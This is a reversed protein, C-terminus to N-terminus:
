KENKKWKSVSNRSLKFHHALQTNNLLNKKQYNLIELIDSDTYARHKGHQKERNGFIINNLTILDIASFEKKGLIAACKDIKDPYKLELIDQYIRKYYPSKM